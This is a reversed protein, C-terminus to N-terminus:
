ALDAGERADDGAHNVGGDVTGDPGWLNGPRDQENLTDEADATDATIGEFLRDLDSIVREMLRQQQMEDRLTSRIRREVDSGSEAVSRFATPVVLEIKYLDAVDYVFSLQKGVHIFGLAPSFGSALLAAHCLGYLCATGASLARNVPDAQAWNGRDYNRGLWPVGYQRSAAAYAERVRVGERGRIQQLTLTAPLEDRFRFAYLRRVTRMRLAEEAWARAQREINASSRTKGGGSAYCRASGEGVWVVSTGCDALAVVAAHTIRTGPGLLLVGVSSAPVQVVGDERYLAISQHEKEIIAREAYLYSLGDRFRPLEKLNTVM